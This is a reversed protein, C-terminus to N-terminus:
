FHPPLQQRNIEHGPKDVCKSKLIGHISYGMHWQKGGLHHIRIPSITDNWAFGLSDIMGFREGLLGHQM